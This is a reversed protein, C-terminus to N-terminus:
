FVLRDQLSAPIKVNFLLGVVVPHWWGVYSLFVTNVLRVINNMNATAMYSSSMETCNTELCRM